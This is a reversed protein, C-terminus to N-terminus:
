YIYIFNTQEDKQEETQRDASRTPPLLHVFM